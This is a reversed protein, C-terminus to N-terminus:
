GETESSNRRRTSTRARAGLPAMAPRVGVDVRSRRGSVLPNSCGASLAPGASGRRPACSRRASTTSSRLALGLADQVLIADVGQPAAALEPRGALDAICAEDFLTANGRRADVVGQALEEYMAPGVRSWAPADGSRPTSGAPYTLDRLRLDDLYVAVLRDIDERTLTPNARM